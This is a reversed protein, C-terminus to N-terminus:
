SWYENFIKYVENVEGFVPDSINIICNEAHGWNMPGRLARGLIQSYTVISGTPRAIILTNIEPADFGTTLVDYTILINLKKTFRFENILQNRSEKNEGLILGVNFGESQVILALIKAHNVSCAFVIIKDELALREKISKIIINNRAPDKEPLISNDESYSIRIEKLKALINIEQLYTVASRLKINKEIKSIDGFEQRPIPVDVEINNDFYKVLADTDEGKLDGRGPTATLGIVNVNKNYCSIKSMFNYAIPALIQHVEDFVITDIEKAYKELVENTKFRKSLSTINAFLVESNENLEKFQNFTSFIKNINVKAKGIVKYVNCFTECAQSALLPTYTLWLFRKPKNAKNIISILTHTAVRTKGSGTPLRILNKREGIEINRIVEEKLKSQFAHLEYFGSFDSIPAIEDPLLKEEVENVSSLYSELIGDLELTEIITKAYNSGWSWNINSIQNTLSPLNGSTFNFKQALSKLEKEPLTKLLMARIEPREIIQPGQIALIAKGLLFPDTLSNENYKKLYELISKDILTELQDSGGSIIKEILSDEWRLTM